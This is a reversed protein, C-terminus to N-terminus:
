PVTPECTEDMPPCFTGEPCPPGCHGSACDEDEFCRLGLACDTCNGGCDLDTEFGDKTGDDCSPAACRGDGGCIGSQCDAPVACTDGGSCALACAGGCDVGAENSGRVRDFCRDFPVDTLCTGSACARAHMRFGFSLLERGDLDVDPALLSTLVGSGVFEERSLVWDRPPTEFVRMFMRHSAPRAALMQVAADYAVNAIRQSDTAGQVLGSVGGADIRLELQMQELLVRSPDADTFVPLVLTAKGPVATTATRNSVFQGDVIRGGIEVTEADPDGVIRVGVTPDNVLDDATIEVILTASGGVLMDHIHDTVNDASALTGIVSGLENDAVGDGNLDGGLDRAADWSRPLEIADVVFRHTEGTFPGIVDSPEADGGCAVVLAVGVFL